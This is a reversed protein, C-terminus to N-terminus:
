KKCLSFHLVVGTGQELFPFCGRPHKKTYTPASAEAARSSRIAVGTHASARLSPPLQSPLSQWPKSQLGRLSLHTCGRLFVRDGPYFRYRADPLVFLLIYIRFQRRPCGRLFVRHDCCFRYRAFFTLIDFFHLGSNGARADPCSIVRLPQRIM